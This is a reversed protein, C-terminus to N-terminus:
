HLFRWDDAFLGQVVKHLDGFRGVPNNSRYDAMDVGLEYKLIRITEDMERNLEKMPAAAAIREAKMAELFTKLRAAQDKCLGDYGRQADQKQQQLQGLHGQLAAREAERADAILHDPEADELERERKALTARLSKLRAGAQAARARFFGAKHENEATEAQNELEQQQREEAAVEARIREVEAMVEDYTLM